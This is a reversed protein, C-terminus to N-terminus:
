FALTGLARIRARFGMRLPSRVDHEHHARRTFKQAAAGGRGGGGFFFFFSKSRGRHLPLRIGHYKSNIAFKSTQLLIVIPGLPDSIFYVEFIFYEYM